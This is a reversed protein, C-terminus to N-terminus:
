SHRWGTHTLVFYMLAAFGAAAVGRLTWKGVARFREDLWEKIVERIATKMIDIRERRGTTATDVGTAEELQAGLDNVANDPNM